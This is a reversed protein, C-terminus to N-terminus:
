GSGEQQKNIAGHRARLVQLAAGISATPDQKLEELIAHLVADPVPTKPQWWLRPLKGIEMRVTAQMLPNGCLDDRVTLVVPRGSPLNSCRM